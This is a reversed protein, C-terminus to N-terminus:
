SDTMLQFTPKVEVTITSYSFKIYKDELGYLMKANLLMLVFTTPQSCFTIM